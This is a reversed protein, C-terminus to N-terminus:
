RPRDEKASSSDFVEVDKPLSLEGFRAEDVGQNLSLEEVEIRVEQRWADTILNELPFKADYFKWSATKLFKAEGDLVDQYEVDLISTVDGNLTEIRRKLLFRDRPSFEYTTSFLSEPGLRRSRVIRGIPVGRSDAMAAEAVDPSNLTEILSTRISPAGVDRPDIPFRDPLGERDVIQLRNMRGSYVKWADGLRLFIEEGGTTQDKIRSLVHDGRFIVSETSRSEPATKVEIVLGDSEFRKTEPKSVSRDTIRTQITASGDHIRGYNDRIADLAARVVEKPEEGSATPCPVLPLVGLVATATRMLISAGM